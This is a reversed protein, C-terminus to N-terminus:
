GKTIGYNTELTKIIKHIREKLDKAEKTDIGEIQELVESLTALHKSLPRKDNDKSRFYEGLLWGGVAGLAAAAIIKYNDNEASM